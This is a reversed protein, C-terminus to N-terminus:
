LKMEMEFNCVTVQLTIMICKAPSISIQNKRIPLQVLNRIAHSDLTMVRKFFRSSCMEHQDRGTIKVM